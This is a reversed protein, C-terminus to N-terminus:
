LLTGKKEIELGNQWYGMNELLKKEVIPVWIPKFPVLMPFLSYIELISLFSIKKCLFDVSKELNGNKAYDLKRLLEQGMAFVSGLNKRLLHWYYETTVVLGRARRCSNNVQGFRFGLVLGKLPAITRKEPVRLQASIPSEFTKTLSKKFIQM